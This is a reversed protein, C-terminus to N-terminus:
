NKLFKIEKKLNRGTRKEIEKILYHRRQHLRHITKSVESEHGHIRLSFGYFGKLPELSRIIDLALSNISDIKYTYWEHETDADKACVEYKGDKFIIKTNGIGSSYVINSFPEYTEFEFGNMKEPNKTLINEILPKSDNCWRELLSAAMRLRLREHNDELFSATRDKKLPYSTIIGREFLFNDLKKIVKSFNKSNMIRRSYNIKDRAEDYHIEPSKKISHVDFLKELIARAEQYKRERRSELARSIIPIRM